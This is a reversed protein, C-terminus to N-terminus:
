DESIQKKPFNFLMSTVIPVFFILVTLISTLIDGKPMEHPLTQLGQSKLCENSGELFETFVGCPM